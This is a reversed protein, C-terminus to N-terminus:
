CEEECCCFRRAIAGSGSRASRFWGYTGWTSFRTNFFTSLTTIHLVTHIFLGYMGRTHSPFVVCVFLFCAHRLMQWFFHGCRVSLCLLGGHILHTNFASGSTPPVFVKTSWCIPWARSPVGHVGFHHHAVSPHIFIICLSPYDTICASLKMRGALLLPVCLAPASATLYLWDQSSPQGVPGRRRQRKAPQELTHM